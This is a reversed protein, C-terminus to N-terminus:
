LCNKQEKAQACMHWIVLVSCMVGLAQQSQIDKIGKIAIKKNCIMLNKKDSLYLLCNNLGHKIVSDCVELITEPTQGANINPIDVLSIKILLRTTLPPSPLLVGGRGLRGLSIKGLVPLM